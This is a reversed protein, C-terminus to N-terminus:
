GVRGTLSAALHNSPAGRPDETMALADFRLADREAVAPPHRRITRGTQPM